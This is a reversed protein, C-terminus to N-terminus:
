RLGFPVEGLVEVGYAALAEDADEPLPERVPPLRRGPAPRSLRRLMEDHGGPVGVVLVRVATSLALLAHPLGRPVFLVDLRELHHKEGEWEDGTWVGLDGDLVILTEDDHRHLHLPIAEGVPMTLEVVGLSGGTQPAGLRFEALSGALWRAEAQGARALVAQTPVATSSM